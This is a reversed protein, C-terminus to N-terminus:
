YVMRSLESELTHLVFMNRTSAKSCHRNEAQEAQEAMEKVWVTGYTTVCLRAPGVAFLIIEFFFM